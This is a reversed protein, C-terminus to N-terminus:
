LKGVKKPITENNLTRCNGEGYSISSTRRFDGTLVPLILKEVSLSSRFFIIVHKSKKALFRCAYSICGNKIVNTKSEMELLAINQRITQISKVRIDVFIVQDMGRSLAELGLQGSGAFLDLAVGGAFYPGLIQFMSEKLRNSTPRVHNGPVMQLKLGKKTGQLLECRFCGENLRM